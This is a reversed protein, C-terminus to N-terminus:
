SHEYFFRRKVLMSNYLPYPPGAPFRVGFKPQLRRYKELYVVPGDFRRPGLGPLNKLTTLSLAKGNEGGNVAIRQDVPAEDRRM